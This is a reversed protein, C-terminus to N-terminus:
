GKYIKGLMDAKTVLGVLKGKDSVLIVQYARLLDSIVGSHANKSIIPPCEQMVEKVQLQNLEKADKVDAMKNIITTETVLGVCREKEMVPMQSIEYKRMKKITLHITDEPSVTVIKKKMIKDAKIEEKASLSDLAAFIKKANSFTPDLVGAEVKAILSQSVGAKKALQHQTLGAKKRIEKIDKLEYVMNKM